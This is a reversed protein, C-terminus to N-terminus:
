KQEAPAFVVKKAERVEAKRVTVVEGVSVGANKRTIGDMRIIDLGVDAPYAKYAIAATKRKGEIEVIEKERVGIKVLNNLDIRVIGRFAEDKSTLEGVRLKLEM